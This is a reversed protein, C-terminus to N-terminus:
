ISIVYAQIDEAHGEGNVSYTLLIKGTATGEGTVGRSQTAVEAVYSYVDGDVGVVYSYFSAFAINRGDDLLNQVINGDLDRIIMREVPPFFTTLFASDEDLWDYKELLHKRSNEYTSSSSWTVAYSIIDAMLKDDDQKRKEDVGTLSIRQENAAGSVTDHEPTEDSSETVQGGQNEILVIEQEAKEIQGNWYVRLGGYVALVFVAAVAMLIGPGFARFQESKWFSKM